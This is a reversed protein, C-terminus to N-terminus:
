FRLRGDRGLRLPRHDLCESQKSSALHSEDVLFPAAVLALPLVGVREM